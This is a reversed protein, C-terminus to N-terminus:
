RRRKRLRIDKLNGDLERALDPRGADILAQKVRKAEREIHEVRSM